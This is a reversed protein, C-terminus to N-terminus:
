IREIRTLFEDVDENMHRFSRLLDLAEDKIKILCEVCCDTDDEESVKEWSEECGFMERDQCVDCIYTAYVGVKESMIIGGRRQQKCARKYASFYPDDFHAPPTGKRADREGWKEQKQNWVKPDRVTDLIEKKIRELVEQDM